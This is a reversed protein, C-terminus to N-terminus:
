ENRSEERTEGPEYTRGRTGIRPDGSKNTMRDEDNWREDAVGAAFEQDHQHDAGNARFGMKSRTQSPTYTNNLVDMPIDTQRRVLRQQKQGGAQDVGRSTSTEPAMEAAAAPKGRRFIRRVASVARGIPGSNGKGRSSAESSAERAKGAQPKVAVAKRPKSEFTESKGKASSKKGAVTKSDAQRRM